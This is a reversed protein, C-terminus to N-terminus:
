SQSVYEEISRAQAEWGGDNMRYAEARRELPIQDFGSEVISLQTGGDAGELRFEVLTMPEASYDVAPDIAFPHWRYSFHREPEIRDVHLELRMHEYGPITIKGRAMAGEVFRDEFKAGFWAGFEEANTIARWVRSQPARLQVSKEIRDTETTGM